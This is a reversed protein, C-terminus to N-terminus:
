SHVESPGEQTENDELSRGTTEPTFFYTVVAGLVGVGGLIMLSSHMGIGPDRLREDTSQSAWLFGVAGIIAGLKGFAGSIGHCTSRFRAPFLEAPVIFTTTNPGFNSFFFTLGLLSYFGPDPDKYWRDNYLRGLVFLCISIILFGMIQIKVRGMRDIFLVSAWYGPITSAVAIIAQLKAVDFAADYANPPTLKGPTPALDEKYTKFEASYILSQFLNSTYFIVDVLFWATSTAFLDRGHECIFQKSFLGYSPPEPARSNSEEGIQHLTMDLVKEMDRVAQPINKEVLATYRATEPMMMRWYYTLMAPVAGLMLIVRWALDAAGPPKPDAPESPSRPIHQFVRCVIMTIASGTLIGFGQMSFVAAIFSGRTRKNAFESMITASLPYDGGIGVGLWFRFFSLSTLVCTRTRCISFGCGISSFVMLMLALGYVRRRGIRDGLWGFVLQGVVTGLLPIAITASTVLAPLVGLSNEDIGDYYLAGILKMIPTICFLDYSDTFLGMGAIIIAKFHYYQTKATDLASLVRLGRM